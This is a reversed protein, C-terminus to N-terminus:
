KKPQASEIKGGAKEIKVAASKTVPLQVILAHSLEGSSVIKVGKKLDEKKILKYKTLTSLTVVSDKPLENLDKLAVVTPQNTYTKNRGRGRYLPLRKTLPLQGGEFGVRITGRAKQGKTGRGATKGRGSGEGRGVRRIKIAVLKPLTHRNIM